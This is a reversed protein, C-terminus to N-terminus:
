AGLPHNEMLFQRPLQKNPKVARNMDIAAINTEKQAPCKKTRLSSSLFAARGTYATVKLNHQTQDLMKIMTAIALSGERIAERKNCKLSLLMLLYPTKKQHQTKSTHPEGIVALNDVITRVKLYEMMSMAGKRTTQFELRFQMVRVKSSASLIKELAM